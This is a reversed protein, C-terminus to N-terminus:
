KYMMTALEGQGYIGPAIANQASIAMSQTAVLTSQTVALTSEFSKIVEEIPRGRVLDIIKEPKLPQSSTGIRIYPIKHSMYFPATGNAIEVAVIQKADINMVRIDIAPAPEIHEHVWSEVKGRIRDPESLGIITGDDEV